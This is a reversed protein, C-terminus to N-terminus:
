LSVRLNTNILYILRSKKFILFEKNKQYNIFEKNYNAKKM